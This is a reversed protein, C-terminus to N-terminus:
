REVGGTLRFRDGPHWLMAVSATQDRARTVRRVVLCPTGAAIQLHKAVPRPPIRAEIQYQAGQLAAVASLHASPTIRTFDQGLYDPALAPNAHRDELQIPRGDELHLLLSRFLRAGPRLGFAEALAADAAVEELALVRCSHRHGRAAVEEHISRVTLLSSEAPLPAVFTGAGRTRTLLGEAALERLARHVTMRAVGYRATLSPESPVAAGVRWEGRRLRRRLDNKIRLYHPERATKAM